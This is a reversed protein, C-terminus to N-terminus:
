GLDHHTPSSGHWRWMGGALLLLAQGPCQAGQTTAVPRQQAGFVFRGQELFDAPHDDFPGTIAQGPNAAGLVVRRFRDGGHGMRSDIPGIDVREVDGPCVVLAAPPGGTSRDAGALQAQAAVYQGIRVRRGPTLVGDAVPNGRHHRQWQPDFALNEASDADAGRLGVGEPRLLHLQEGLGGLVQREADLGQADFGSAHLRLLFDQPEAAGQRCPHRDVM